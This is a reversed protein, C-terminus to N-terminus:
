DTEDYKREGYDCFGNGDATTYDGAELAFMPCEHPDHWKRCDKCRVVPVADVTPANEIDCLTFYPTADRSLRPDLTDTDILRMAEGKEALVSIKTEWMCLPMKQTACNKVM